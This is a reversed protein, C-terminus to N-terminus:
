IMHGAGAHKRAYESEGNVYVPKADLYDALEYVTQATRELSKFKKLHAENVGTIIGMDPHVLDCLKRIDGPYYEGLEFILIDEDGALASVFRSIGLPTNYSHPPAATKKGESLVTKLIERMTTKGFSGVIGIKVAKHTKLRARARRVIVTEIPRQVLMRLLVLSILLAYALIYPTLLVTLLLLIYSVPASTSRFVFIAAGLLVVVFFWAIALLIVAKPTRVLHKRHEVHAFDKIRHYWALYDRVSYESAQLMYILSRPYRLSYRSLFNKM